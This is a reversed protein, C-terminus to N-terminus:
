QNCKCSSIVVKFILLENMKLLPVFFSSNSDNSALLARGLSDTYIGKDDSVNNDKFRATYNRSIAQENVTRFYFNILSRKVYKLLLKFIFQFVRYSMVNDLVIQIVLYGFLRNM